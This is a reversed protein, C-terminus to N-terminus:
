GGIDSHGLTIGSVGSNLMGILAGEIGDRSDWNMLQDGM